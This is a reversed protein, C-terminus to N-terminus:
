GPHESPHEPKPTDTETAGEVPHESAAEEGTPHESPHESAAEEGTPMEGEPEVADATAVDPQETPPESETQEGSCGTTAICLSLAVAVIALVLLFRSM